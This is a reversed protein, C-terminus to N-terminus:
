CSCGCLEHEGLVPKSASLKEVECFRALTDEVELNRRSILLFEVVAVDNRTTDFDCELQGNIFGAEYMDTPKKNVDYTENKNTENPSM